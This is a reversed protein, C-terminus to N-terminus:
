YNSQYNSQMCMCMCMCTHVCCWDRFCVDRALMARTHQCCAIWTGTVFGYNVIVFSIVNVQNAYDQCSHCTSIRGDRSTVTCFAIRRMQCRNLQDPARCSTTKKKKQRARNKIKKESQVYVLLRLFCLSLLFWRKHQKTAREKEPM